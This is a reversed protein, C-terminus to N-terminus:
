VCVASGTVRGLLRKLQRCFGGACGRRMGPGAADGGPVLGPVRRAAGGGGEPPAPRASLPASPSCGKEEGREAQRHTKFCYFGASAGSERTGGAGGRRLRGHFDCAGRRCHPLCVAQSMGTIVKSSVVEEGRGGRGRWM